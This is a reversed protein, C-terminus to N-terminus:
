AHDLLHGYRGANIPQQLLWVDFVAEPGRLRRLALPEELDPFRVQPVM